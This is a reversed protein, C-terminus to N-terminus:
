RRPSDDRNKKARKVQQDAQALLAQSDELLGRARSVQSLEHGASLVAHGDDHLASYAEITLRVSAECDARGCECFFEWELEEGVSERAADLIRANVEVLAATKSERDDKSV